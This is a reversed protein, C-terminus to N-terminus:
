RDHRGMRARVRDFIAGNPRELGSGEGDEESGYEASDLVEISVLYRELADLHECGNRQAIEHLLPWNKVTRWARANLQSWAGKLKFKIKPSPVELLGARAGASEIEIADPASRDKGLGMGITQELASRQLYLGPEQPEGPGVLTTLGVPRAILRCVTEVFAITLPDDYVYSDLLRESSPAGLFRGGAARLREIRERHLWLVYKAFLRKSPDCWHQTHEWNKRSNLYSAADDTVRVALIRDEVALTSSRNLRDGALRAVIKELDNTAIIVRPRVEVSRIEKGKQEVPLTGGSIFERFKESVSGGHANGPLGEDLFVVPNTALPGNFREFARRTFEADRFVQASGTPPIDKGIGPPGEIVLARTPRSVEPVTAFWDRVDEARDGFTHEVWADIDANFEPEIDALEYQPLVLVYQKGDRELLPHKLGIRETVRSIAWPRARNVIEQGSLYVVVRGRPETLPLFGDLGHEEIARSLQDRSYPQPSLCGTWADILFYDSEAKFVLRRRSWAGAEDPDDPIEEGIFTERQGALISEERSAYEVKREQEAREQEARQADLEAETADWAELVAKWVSERWGEAGHDKTLKYVLAYVLRPDFEEHPVLAAVVPEIVKTRLLAFQEARPLGDAGPLEGAEFCAAYARPDAKKIVKGAAKKRATACPRSNGGITTTLNDAETDDPMARNASREGRLFNGFEALLDADQKELRALLAPVDEPRDIGASMGSRITAEIEGPELRIEEALEALREGTEDEDILGAGVLHGLRLAVNNLTSNRTGEQAVRLKELEGEVIASVYPGIRQQQAATLTAAVKVPPATRPSAAREPRAGKEQIAKLVNAPLEAVPVEDPGHGDLWRYPEGTEPHISGSLVVQGGDGRVDLGVKKPQGRADLAGSPDPMSYLKGVSNGITVGEPAAYYYHRKGPSTEATVTPPLDFHAAGAQTGTDDDLVVIGSVSGTRVGLNYGEDIWGRVDEETAVERKQWGKLLPEKGRSRLPTLAWDLALALEAARNLDPGSV